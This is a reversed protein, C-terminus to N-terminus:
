MMQSGATLSRVAPDTPKKDTVKIGATGELYYEPTKNPAFDTLEKRDSDCYIARYGYVTGDLHWTM